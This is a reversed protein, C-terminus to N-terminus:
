GSINKVVICKVQLKRSDNKEPSKVTNKEKQQANVKEESKKKKKEQSIVESNSQIEVLIM